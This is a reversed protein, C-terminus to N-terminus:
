HFFIQCAPSVRSLMLMKNFSEFKGKLGRYPNAHIDVREMVLAHHVIYKLMAKEDEHDQFGEYSVTTLSHLLCKPVSAPDRWGNRILADCGWKRIRLEELAPCSNIVDFNFVISNVTLFLKTVRTFCASFKGTTEKLTLNLIKAQDFIHITELTLGGGISSLDFTVENLSALDNLIVIKISLFVDWVVCELAPTGIQLKFQDSAAAVECDSCLGHYYRLRKLSHSFITCVVM